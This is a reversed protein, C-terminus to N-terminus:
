DFISKPHMILNKCKIIKSMLLYPRTNMKKELIIIKEKLYISNMDNQLYLDIHNKVIMNRLFLIKGNDRIVEDAMSKEKRRYYFLIDPIRYTSLGQDLLSLWLDWDEWGYIMNKSYGHTQDYDSRRFFSSCFIINGLLMREITFEPLDWLGYYKGFFEAECYVIGVKSDHDLIEVAKEMYEAGIKDDADLPLIYQGSSNRIGTNRAESLGCNDTTIIRTKQKNYQKLKENTFSDTSGDNVIIIEFDQYTQRLVSDVAEDIYIGQNYCPIIVSVKPMLYGCIV